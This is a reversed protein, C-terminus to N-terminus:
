QWKAKQIHSQARDCLQRFHKTMPPTLTPALAGAIDLNAATFPNEGTMVEFPSLETSSHSTTNYALELASLLREWEREGSQIYTHFMQELTRNLRETQGDSQPHYSSSMARKVDFRHCLQQWLDSQFRPDRDSILVEPFGHYRILRDALLEVTDAATFSKKAPVFHAKKSLSDAMVLISDHGTTTLPLDTIFDLSVHAWRHSPILLQQLLGAPRQNFSKSARCHACSEVCATTYARIGPWYYHKSLAAFTKKQGRHSATVHGHHSHLVQTLFEPFQPVCISWLGHVRIHLYPQVYRFTFQRNRFEILLAEGPQNVAAKYPVRFVPCKSYAQPWQRVDPPDAPTKTTLTPHEPEPNPEPPPPSPASPLSRRRPRRSRIGPLKRYNPPRGRSLPAASAQGTALMLPVSPTDHSCSNPLGPRRSLVDAVQNRAGQVYTIQLDSFEALFDLWRVTRGRLPKSAQLRQLHTLAQHDTYATVKSVRLLHSWKDLAIVLALLEQDYISYRQQTPNMVQILFGIPKGDQELVAGISYGSADTYLEFPKTTDPVQLTTFDILRQKLQRVAQTYLETWEFSVDLNVLPRAVDAYDPGM